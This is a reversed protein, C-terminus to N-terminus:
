LALGSRLRGFGPSSSMHCSYLLQFRPFGSAASVASRPPSIPDGSVMLRLSRFNSVDFMSWTTRRFWAPRLLWSSMQALRSSKALSTIGSNWALTGACSSHFALTSAPSISSSSISM